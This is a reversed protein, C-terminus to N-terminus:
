SGDTRSKFVGSENFYFNSVTLSANTAVFKYANAGGLM